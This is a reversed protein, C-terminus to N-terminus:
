INVLWTKYLPSKVCNWHIVNYSLFVRQFLSLYSGELLWHFEIKQIKTPKEKM